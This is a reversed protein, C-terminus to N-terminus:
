VRWFSELMFGLIARNLRRELCEAATSSAQMKAQVLRVNAKPGAAGGWAGSFSVDFVDPAFSMSVDKNNPLSAQCNLWHRASVSSMRPPLEVADNFPKVSEEPCASNTPTNDSTSFAKAPRTSNKRYPIPIVLLKSSRNKALMEKHHQIFITKTLHNLCTSPM